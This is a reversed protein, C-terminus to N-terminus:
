RRVMRISTCRRIGSVSLCFPQKISAVVVRSWFEIFDNRSRGERAPDGAIRCLLTDHASASTFQIVEDSCGQDLTTTAEFGLLRKAKETKPIRRQVDYEFPEDSITRLASDPGKIRRWIMEALHLV